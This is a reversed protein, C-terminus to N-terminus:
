PLALHQLGIDILTVQAGNEAAKLSAAMAAGGSGIVAIRLGNAREDGIAFASSGSTNTTDAVRTIFGM